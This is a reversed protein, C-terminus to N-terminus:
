QFKSVIAIVILVIALTIASNRLTKLNSEYPSSMEDNISGKFGKFAWVVFAGVIEIIFNIISIRM